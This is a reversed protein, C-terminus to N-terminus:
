RAREELASLQVASRQLARESGRAALNDGRPEGGTSHRRREPAEHRHRNQWRTLERRYRRWALRALYRSVRGKPASWRPEPDLDPPELAPRQRPEEARGRPVRGAAPSLEPGRSNAQERPAQERPAQRPRPRRARERPKGCLVPPDEFGDAWSGDMRGEGRDRDRGGEVEAGEGGRPQGCLVFYLSARGGLPSPRTERKALGASELAELARSAVGRGRYARSAEKLQRPTIEGGRGQILEFLERLRDGGAGLSQRERSVAPVEQSRDAGM